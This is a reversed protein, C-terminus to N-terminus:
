FCWTYFLHVIEGMKWAKWFFSRWGLIIVHININIRCYHFDQDRLGSYDLVSQTSTTHFHFINVTRIELILITLKKFVKQGFINDFIFFVCVYVFIMIESVRLIKFCAFIRLLYTYSILFFGVWSDSFYQVTSCTLMNSCIADNYQLSYPM